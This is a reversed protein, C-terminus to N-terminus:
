NTDELIWHPVGKQSFRIFNWQASRNDLSGFCKKVELMWEDSPINPHKFWSCSVHLKPKDGKILLDRSIILRLGIEFDFVHERHKGPTDEMFEEAIWIKELAKPYRQKLKYNPEPQFPLM